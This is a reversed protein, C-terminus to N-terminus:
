LAAYSSRSGYECQVRTACEKLFNQPLFHIYLLRLAAMERKWSIFNNASTLLHAHVIKFSNHFMKSVLICFESKFFTRSPILFTNISQILVVIQAKDGFFNCQSAGMCCPCWVVVPTRLCQHSQRSVYFVQLKFIMLASFLSIYATM